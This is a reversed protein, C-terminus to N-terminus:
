QTAQTFWQKIVPTAIQQLKFTVLILRLYRNIEFELQHLNEFCCWITVNFLTKFHISHSM